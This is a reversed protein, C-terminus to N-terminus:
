NDGMLAEEKGDGLLNGGKEDRPLNEGIEDGRLAETRPLTDNTKFRYSSLLLAAEGRM